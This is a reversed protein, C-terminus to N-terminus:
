WSQILPQWFWCDGEEDARGPESCEPGRLADMAAVLEALEVDNEARITVSVTDPRARHLDAALQTLRAMDYGEPGTEGARKALTEVIAEGERLVLSDSRIELEIPAENQAPPTEGRPDSSRPASVDIAAMSATEMALLLGPILLFMINM